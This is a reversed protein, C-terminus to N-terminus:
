MSMNCTTKINKAIKASIWLFVPLFVCTTSGLGRTGVGKPFKHQQKQPPKRAKTTKHRAKQVQQFRCFGRSLWVFVLNCVRVQGNQPRCSQQKSPKRTKHQFELHKGLFVSSCGSFSYRAFRVQAGNPNMNPDGHESFCGILKGTAEKPGATGSLSKSKKPKIAEM